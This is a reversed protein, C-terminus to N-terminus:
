GSAIMPICFNSGNAPHLISHAAPSGGSISLLRASMFSNTRRDATSMWFVERINDALQRFKEESVKLAEQARTRENIDRVMSLLGAPQENIGLSVTASLEVRLPTRDKKLLTYQVDRLIGVKLASSIDSKIREHQEEPSLEFISKELLEASGTM